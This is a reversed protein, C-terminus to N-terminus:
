KGGKFKGVACGNCGHTVINGKIGGKCNRCLANVVREAGRKEAASVEVLRNMHDLFVTKDKARIMISNEPLLDNFLLKMGFLNEHAPAPAEARDREELEAKIVYDKYLDTNSVKDVYFDWDVSPKKDSTYAVNNYDIVVHVDISIGDYARYGGKIFNYVYKLLSADNWDKARIILFPDEERTYLDSELDVKYIHYVLELEAEITQKM